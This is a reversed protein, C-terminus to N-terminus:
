RRKYNKPVKFTVTLDKNFEYTKYKMKIDIKSKEAITIERETAFQKGLASEYSGYTVDATRSRSEDIDDLKSHMILYSDLALTVLHKFYMGNANILYANNTKKYGLYTSDLFIPNGLILDQLTYFDFPIQTIEQLHDLSRYRVEKEQVNMLIISDKKILIRFAEINLITASISVWIVSDKIMRVNAVLDPIRDKSNDEYDIKIKANFTKFDIRNLAIKDAILKITNISDENTPPALVVVATDKPAIVASIKRTSKCSLTFIVLSCFLFVIQFIRVM